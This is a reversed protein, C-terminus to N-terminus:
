RAARQAELKDIRHNIQSPDYEEAKKELNALRDAINMANLETRLETLGKLLQKHYEDLLKIQSHATEIVDQLSITLNHHPLPSQPQLQSSQQAWVGDAGGLLVFLAFASYIFHIFQKREM